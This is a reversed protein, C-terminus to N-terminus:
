RIPKRQVLREVGSIREMMTALMIQSANYREKLERVEVVVSNLQYWQGGLLFLVGAAWVIQSWSLRLRGNSDSM